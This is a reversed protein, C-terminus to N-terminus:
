ALIIIIIEPPSPASLIKLCWWLWGGLFTHTMTRAAAVSRALGHNAVSFRSYSTALFAYGVIGDVMISDDCRNILM